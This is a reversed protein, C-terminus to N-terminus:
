NEVMGFLKDFVEQNYNIQKDNKDEEPMVKESGHVFWCTGDSYLTCYVM